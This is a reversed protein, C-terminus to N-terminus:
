GKKREIALETLAIMRDDRALVTQAYGCLLYLFLNAAALAFVWDLYIAFAGMGFLTKCLSILGASLALLGPVIGINQLVGTVLRLRREFGSRENKLELVGLALTHSSLSTLLPLFQEDILLRTKINIGALGAFPAALVNRVSDRYRGICLVPYAFLAGYSVAILGWSTYYIWRMPELLGALAILVALFLPALVCFWFRKTSMQLRRSTSHEQRLTEVVHRDAQEIRAKIHLYQEIENSM